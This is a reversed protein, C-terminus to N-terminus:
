AVLRESTLSSQAYNSLIFVIQKEEKTLACSNLIFYLNSWSSELKNANILKLGSQIFKFSKKNIQINTYELISKTMLNLQKTTFKPNIKSVDIGNSLLFLNPINYRLYLCASEYILNRVDLLNLKLSMRRAGYQKFLNDMLKATLDCCEEISPSLQNTQLLLLQELKM